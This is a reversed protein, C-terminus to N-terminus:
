APLEEAHLVWLHPEERDALLVLLSVRQREVRVGQQALAREVEAAVGLAALEQAAGGVDDHGVAEGAVDHELQELPRDLVEEVGEPLLHGGGRAPLEAAEQDLGRRPAEAGTEVRVGVAARVEEAQAPERHDRVAVAAPPRDAVRDPKGRPPDLVSHDLPQRFPQRLAHTYSRATKRPCTEGWGGVSISTVHCRRTFLDELADLFDQRLLESDFLILDGFLSRELLVQVRVREVQDLQDHLELILEPDLDGVLVRLLDRGDPLGDVVDRRVLLSPGAASRSSISRSEGSRAAATKVCADHAASRVAEYSRSSNRPSETRSSAIARARKSRKGSKLSPRM